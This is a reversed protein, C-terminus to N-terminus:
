TAVNAVNQQMLVAMVPSDPRMLKRVKALSEVARLYRRQAASLRKDWYAGSNRDHNGMANLTYQQECYTLRHWCTVIHWILTKEIATGEDYGFQARLNLMHRGAAQRVTEQTTSKEIMAKAAHLSQDGLAAALSPVAALCKSLAERDARSPKGFDIRELMAQLEHITMGFDEETSVKVTIPEAMPDKRWQRKYLRYGDVIMVLALVNDTARSVDGVANQLAKDAKVMRRYLEREAKRRTREQEDLQAALEALLGSGFPESICTGNVWRKRYYRGDVWAM